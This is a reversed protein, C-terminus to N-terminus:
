TASMSDDRCTEFGYFPLTAAHKGPNETDTRGVGNKVLM